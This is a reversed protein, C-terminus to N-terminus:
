KHMWSKGLYRHTSPRVYLGLAKCVNRESQKIQKTQQSKYVPFKGKIGNEKQTTKALIYCTSNQHPVKM